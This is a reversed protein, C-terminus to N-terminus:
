INEGQKQLRNGRNFLHKFSQKLIEAPLIIFAGLLVGLENWLISGAAPKFALRSLFADFTNGYLNGLTIMRLYALIDRSTEPGYYDVVRQWAEPDPKCCSEAYHQAFLLAVAEHEPFSGLDGAAIKHLESEPVGAALASRTHGYNCYRCGNVHTVALMIKEAFAKSIRNGRAASRLDDLHAIAQRIDERFAPLTYIRKSFSAIRM